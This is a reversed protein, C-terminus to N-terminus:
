GDEMRWGGPRGHREEMRWGLREKEEGRGLRRKRKRSEVRSSSSRQGRRTRTKDQRAKVRGRVCACVAEEVRRAVRKERKGEGGCRGAQRQSVLRKAEVACAAGGARKERVCV